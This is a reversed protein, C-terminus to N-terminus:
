RAVASPVGDVEPCETPSPVGLHQLVRDVMREADYREAIARANRALERHLVENALLYGLQCALDGSDWRRFVLGGARDGDRILETIGGHDPILVPTGHSMAEAVVLGSAERDVAPYVLCHSHALLSDRVAASVPGAHHLAVGLRGALDVIARGGSAAVTSGGCIVLQLRVGRTRLQKLAYLLLDHGKGADQRGFCTVIPVDEVLGPFVNKLMWLPPRVAQRRVEVGSHIVRLREGAIGLEVAVRKLGDASAVLAPWRSGKAAAQLCERYREFLGQDRACDAFRADGQFTLAYEFSGGGLRKAALALQGLTACGLMLYSIGDRAVFDGLRRALAADSEPTGILARLLNVLRREGGERGLVARQGLGEPLLAALLGLRDMIESPRGFRYRAGHCLLSQEIGPDVLDRRGELLWYVHVKFGRRHLRNALTLDRVVPGPHLGGGITVFAFTPKGSM